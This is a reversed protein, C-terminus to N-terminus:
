PFFPNSPTTIESRWLFETRWTLPLYMFGNHNGGRPSPVLRLPKSHGPPTWGVLNTYVANALANADVRVAAGGKNATNVNRLTLVTHWTCETLTDGVNASLPKIGDLVVHVAPVLQREEIVGDLDAACLVHVAPTHSALATKLREVLLPELSLPGTILVTAAM